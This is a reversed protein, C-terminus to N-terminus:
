GVPQPKLHDLYGVYNPREPGIERSEMFEKIKQCATLVRVISEAGQAHLGFPWHPYQSWIRTFEVLVEGLELLNRYLRMDKARVFENPPDGPVETWVDMALNMAMGMTSALAMAMKVGKEQPAQIAFLRDDWTTQYVSM